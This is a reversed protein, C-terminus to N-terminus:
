NVAASPTPQATRSAKLLRLLNKITKLNWRSVIFKPSPAPGWYDEFEGPLTETPVHDENILDTDTWHEHIVGWPNAWYDFIQGGLRHRGIGWIHKRKKKKLHEHGGILDDFNGVEFAMHQVRTGEDVAFQFGVVHHDVYEQGRDLRSFIMFADGDPLRVEDSRTLGLHTNYWHYLGRPDDSELVLHGLRKVHSASRQFLPLIGERRREGDMNYQHAPAGAIADLTTQGHIIEIIIGRPDTLRVVQGGCPGDLAEIGSAGDIGAITELDTMSDAEFAIATVGSEGQTLLYCPPNADTGRLYVAATDRKAVQLGFEALFKEAQELDPASVRVHALRKVKILPTSM